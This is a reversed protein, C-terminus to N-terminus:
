DRGDTEALLAITRVLAEVALGMDEPSAHELPNHSIGARCRVFMMGIDTLHIMAQGDHGAGSMLARAPKSTTAQIAAAIAQRLRPACTAVPKEHV